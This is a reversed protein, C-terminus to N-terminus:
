IFVYSCPIVGVDHNAIRAFAAYSLDLIRGAVFPGRDNIRVDVTQGTRENKVRVNRGFPLTKHASTMANPNFVEGSATLAGPPLEGPAGYFSCMGSEVPKRGLSGGLCQVNPIFICLKLFRTRAIAVNPGNGCELGGNIGKTTAGFHGSSVGDKTHVNVKWFWFATDWALNEDTAVSNPNTVLNNNGLLDQSAARYNACWSLQIYGRGYYHQGPADCGPTEYEGPCGNSICKFERKATLGASEHIFQSLAMAAEEKSSISGKPLGKIFADYTQQSPKPYGNSTVATSFEVFSILAGGPPNPPTVSGSRACCYYKNGGSCSESKSQVWKDAPFCGRQAWTTPQCGSWWCNASGSSGPNSSGQLIGVTVGSKSIVPGTGSKLWCTGGQFNNWAYAKCGGTKKCIDCCNGLPQGSVSKLDPLGIDSNSQSSCSQQYSSTVLTGV